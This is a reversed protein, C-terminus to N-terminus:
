NLDGGNDTLLEVIFDHGESSAAQMAGGYRGGRINVEAGSALLLRAVTYCGKYSAAQLATGVYDSVSVPLVSDPSCLTFTTRSERDSANVDAGAALLIEVIEEHGHSAASTLAYKNRDLNTLAGKSLLLQVMSTQGCRSAERLPHDDSMGDHMIGNVDAGNSLLIEAVQLHGKAAAGILADTVSYAYGAPDNASKGADLIIEVAEIFGESAALSLAGRGFFGSVVYPRAGFDLLIKTIGIDGNRIAINLSNDHHKHSLNPDVGQKLLHHVLRPLRHFTASMLRVPSTEQGFPYDRIKISSGYVPCVRHKFINPEFLEAMLSFLRESQEKVIRAHHMWYNIAYSLLPFDAKLNKTRFGDNDDHEVGDYEFVDESAIHILHALCDEAITTHARLSEVAYVARDGALIDDSTLYEKVSSHALRVTKNAEGAGTGITILSSCIKLLAEPNPIRREPDFRPSRDLEVALVDVLEGIELPRLSCVLWQLLRKALNQHPKKINGLLRAYTGNLTSPLSNLTEKIMS